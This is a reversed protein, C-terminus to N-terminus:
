RVVFNGQNLVPVDSVTKKHCLTHTAARPYNVAPIQPVEATAAVYVARSTTVRLPDSLAPERNVLTPGQVQNRRQVRRQAGM